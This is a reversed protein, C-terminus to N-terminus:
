FWLLGHFIERRQFTSLITSYQKSNKYYFDTSHSMDQIFLLCLFHQPVPVLEPVALNCACRDFWLIFAKNLLPNDIEFILILRLRIIKILIIKLIPDWKIISDCSVFSFFILLLLNYMKFLFNLIYPNSQLLTPLKVLLKGPFEVFDGIIESSRFEEILFQVLLTVLQIWSDFCCVVSMRLDLILFHSQHYLDTGYILFFLQSNIFWFNKLFLDFIEIFLDFSQM